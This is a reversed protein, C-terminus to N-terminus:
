SYSSVPSTTTYNDSSLNVFYFKEDEVNIQNCIIYMKVTIYIIAVTVRRFM